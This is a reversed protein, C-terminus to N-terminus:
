GHWVFPDNPLKFWVDTRPQGLCRKGAQVLMAKIRLTGPWNILERTDQKWYLTSKGAKTMHELDLVACCEYCFVKGNSQGYKHDEIEKKCQCCFM